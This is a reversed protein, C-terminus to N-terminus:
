LHGAVDDVNSWCYIRFLVVEYDSVKFESPRVTPGSKLNLPSRDNDLESDDCALSCFDRSLRYQNASTGCVGSSSANPMQAPTSAYKSAGGARRTTTIGLTKFFANTM